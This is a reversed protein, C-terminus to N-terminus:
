AEPEQDAKWREIEERLVTRVIEPLRAEVLERVSDLLRSEIQAVFDELSVDPEAPAETPELFAPPSTVEPISAEAFKSLEEPIEESSDLFLAPAPEELEPEPKPEPRALAGEPSKPPEPEATEDQFFPLDKLLDDELLFEEESEGKGEDEEAGLQREGDLIEVDLALEEEDEFGDAPLEIIEDDLEIIEDDLDELDTDFGKSELPSEEWEESRKPKKMTTERKLVNMKRPESSQSEVKERLFTFGTECLGAACGSVM